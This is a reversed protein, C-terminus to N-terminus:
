PPNRIADMLKHWKLRMQWEPFSHPITAYKWSPVCEAIFLESRGRAERFDALGLLMLSIRPISAFSEQFEKIGAVHAQQPYAQGM